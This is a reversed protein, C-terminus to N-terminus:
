ADKRKLTLLRDRYYEYQKQRAEIEAPLGHEKDNVLEEFKDLIDVIRQQEPLPPIPIEFKLLKTSNMNTQTGEGLSKLKVYNHSLWQFVYKYLAIKPNIELNRCAQNTTLPIKNICVRGITAGYMAVIVCNIPILKASSNKVAEQTIKIETDWIENYNVEQTRLWPINGGYYEKKSTLPTGGSSTNLCIDNITKWEVNSYDKFSLLQNRYYEYQQKRAQLEDQLESILSTFTDLVEVIKEQVEIPPVPIETSKIIESNLNSVSGTNVQSKWYHQVDNSNLLHYLYDSNLFQSFNSISAWGDHICGDIKLIYPRGFSMSNSLIFDGTHLLRSKNVGDEVIKEETKEVYKSGPAIDGIKIWPTGEGTKSIYNSIPRPSAGRQVNSVEGLKKYEVGDPCLDQILQYITKM